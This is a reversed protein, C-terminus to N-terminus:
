EDDKRLKQEIKKLKREIRFLYSIIGGWIILVVLLVIYMQNHELFEM